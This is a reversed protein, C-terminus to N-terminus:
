QIVHANYDSLASYKNDYVIVDGPKYNNNKPGGESTWQNPVYTYIQDLSLTEIGNKYAVIQFNVIVEKANIINEPRPTDGQKVFVSTAPILYKGYWWQIKGDCYQIEGKWGGEGLWERGKVIRVGKTLTLKDIGGIWVSGYKATDLNIKIDDKGSGSMVLPNNNNNYYLDLPIRQNLFNKYYFTPKIEIRDAQRYLYESTIDFYFAYGKKPYANRLTPHSEQDIPLRNVKYKVNKYKTYSDDEWFVDTWRPDRIDTVQFDRLKIPDEYPGFCKYTYNGAVDYVEVHLFLHDGVPKEIENEEVEEYRDYYTDESTYIRTYGNKHEESADSYTWKYQISKVGSLNDNVTLKGFFGDDCGLISPKRIANNAVSFITSNPPDDEINFDIEPDTGDIYYTKFTKDYDNTAIDTAEAYISYIGDDLSFTHSYDHDGGCSFDESEDRGYHSSDELELSGSDIGSLEDYISVEVDYLTDNRWEKKPRPDVSIEPRTWDINYEGSEGTPNDPEEYDVDDYGDDDYEPDGWFGEGELTLGEGEEEIYITGRDGDVTDEADGTVDIHDLPFEVKISKEKTETTVNGEDDEKEVEKTATGKVIHPNDGDYYVEVPYEGEGEGTKGENTWDTENPDFKIVGLSSEEIDEEGEGIEPDGGSPPTIEPETVSVNNGKITVTYIAQNGVQDETIIDIKYETSADYGGLDSSSFVEGMDYGEVICARTKTSLLTSGKYAKFTLCKNGSLGHDQMNPAIVRIGGGESRATPNTLTPATKDIKAQFSIIASETGLKDFAKVQISHLGENKFTMTTNQKNDGLSTYQGNGTSYEMHSFGSAYFSEQIIGDKGVEGRGKEGNDGKCLITATVDERTWSTPVGSIEPSFPGASEKLYPGGKTWEGTAPVYVWLWWEGAAEFRQDRLQSPTAYYMLDIDPRITSSPSYLYYCPNGGTNINIYTVQTSTEFTRPEFSVSAYVTTPILSFISCILIVKSIIKKLKENIRM